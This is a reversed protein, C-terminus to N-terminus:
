VVKIGKKESLEEKSLFFRFTLSERVRKSCLFFSPGM